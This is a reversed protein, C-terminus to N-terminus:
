SIVAAFSNLSIRVGYPDVQNYFVDALPAFCANDDDLSRSSNQLMGTGRKFARELILRYNEPASSRGLDGSRKMKAGSKRMVFIVPPHNTSPANSRKTCGVWPNSRRLRDGIGIQLNWGMKLEKGSQNLQCVM